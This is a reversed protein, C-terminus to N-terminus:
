TTSAQEKSGKGRGGFEIRMEGYYQKPLKHINYIYIYSFYHGLHQNYHAKNHENLLPAPPIGNHIKAKITHLKTVTHDEHVNTYEKHVLNIEGIIAGFEM